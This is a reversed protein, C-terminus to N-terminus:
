VGLLECVAGTLEEYTAMENIRGRFKASGPFGATYWATHKRMERVGIYEGKYEILLRGHELIMDAVEKNTPRPLNEGTELFHKIQAFLWPNGQSGRGIMVGDCGTQEKIAIVDQASKVDGNGIVPINVAEKVQRIIDWDAKGEYIQEKTRGHVAIAAAGSEQAVHAMEVANIHESDYGKRIKVTVPRDAVKVMAEIIQGALKPNLMLAAGEGNGAIKPMPCGMNIDIISHPRDSIRKTAEAMTDPENGFLQLSVPMEDPHIELMGDTKKNNYTIAKASVMEMCILDAGQRACLMRFPLDTVGAMPALIIGNGIDLNGIKM